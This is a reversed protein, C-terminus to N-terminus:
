NENTKNKNTTSLFYKFIKFIEYIEISFIKLNFNMNKLYKRMKVLIIPNM